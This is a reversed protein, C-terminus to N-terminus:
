SIKKGTLLQIFLKNNDTIEGIYVSKRNKFGNEKLAKKVPAIPEGIFYIIARNNEIRVDIAKPNM